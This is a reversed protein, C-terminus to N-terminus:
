AGIGTRGPLNRQDGWSTTRLIEAVTRDAHRHNDATREASAGTVTITYRTSKSTGSGTNNLVVTGACGSMAITVGALFLIGTLLRERVSFQRGFYRRRRTGILPLFLLCLAVTWNSWRPILLARSTSGTQISLSVNTTGQGSAVTTPTFTATSGPPIGSATLTIAAPFTTSFKPTVILSYTAAGGPQVTVNTASGARTAVSFFPTFTYTASVVASAKYSNASAIAEITM